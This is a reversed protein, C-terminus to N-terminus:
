SAIGTTTIIASGSIDSLASWGVFMTADPICMVIDFQDNYKQKRIDGYRLKYLCNFLAYSQQQPLLRTTFHNTEGHFLMIERFGM